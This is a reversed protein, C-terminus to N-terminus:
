TMKQAADMQIAGAADGISTNWRAVLRVYPDADNQPVRLYHVVFVDVPFARFRRVAREIAACIWSHSNGFVGGGVMTLYVKVREGRVQSLIAAAAITAEYTGDLIVQALRRSSKQSTLRDYSIPVGSSFVQCVTHGARTETDWHIGVRLAATCMEALGAEHQLRESLSSMADPRASLLYGNSMNWYKNHDNDLLEALKSAGDIQMGNGQGHGNVFYNRFVTGAPCAIACTPGQTRDNEYRTVGQEPTIKPGVMELCNFQSAVQFVAGANSPDNHLAGVEAGINSLTLGNEIAAATKAEGVPFVEQNVRERLATVTAVEWPGVRFSRNTSVATLYVGGVTVDEASLPEETCRFQASADVYSSAEDFGFSRRFWTERSQM